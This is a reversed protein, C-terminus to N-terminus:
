AIALRTRAKGLREMEREAASGREVVRRQLHPQNGVVIGPRYLKRGVPQRLRNVDVDFAVSWRVVPKMQRWRGSPADEQM